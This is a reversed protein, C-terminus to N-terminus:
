ASAFWPSEKKQPTNMTNRSRSQVTVRSALAVEVGRKIPMRLLQEFEARSMTM